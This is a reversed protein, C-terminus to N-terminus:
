CVQSECFHLSLLSINLQTIFLIKKIRFEWLHFITGVVRSYLKKLYTHLLGQTYPYRSFFHTNWAAVPMLGDSWVGSIIFTYTWVCLQTYKGLRCSAYIGKGERVESYLILCYFESPFDFTFFFFIFTDGGYLALSFFLGLCSLSSFCFNFHCCSHLVSVSSFFSDSIILFFTFLLGLFSFFSFHLTM